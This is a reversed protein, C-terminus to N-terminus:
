AGFTERLFANITDYDDALKHYTVNMTKVKALAQVAPPLSKQTSPHLPFQRSLLSALMLETEPRLLFDLFHIGAHSHPAGEVLGATNPILLTGSPADKPQQNPFVLDLPQKADQRIYADDTDTMAVAVEGTGAMEAAVSNGDVTRVHNDRLARYFAKAKEAGLVQFLAAAETTTTGFLPDAMALRGKWEPRGLDLLSSPPNPTGQHVAFVRFRAAFGTWRGEPDVFRKPYTVKLPWYPQLAKRKALLVTQLVESSWFVDALPAKQEALIRQALGRSKTAETDFVPLVKIATERTFADFVPRAYPEDLSCYVTVIGRQPKQGCGALAIVGGALLSRRTLPPFDTM